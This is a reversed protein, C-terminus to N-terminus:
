RAISDCTLDTLDDIHFEKLFEVPWLQDDCTMRWLQWKTVERDSEVLYIEDPLDTRDKLLPRLQEGVADSNTLAIDDSELM